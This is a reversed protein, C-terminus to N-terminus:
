QPAASLEGVYEALAERWPRLPELGLGALRTGGLVANLPRKTPSDWAASPIGEVEVDALGAEELAALALELRSCAGQNTAHVIGTAETALLRWLADALDPAYTPCGREDHVVELRKRSRAAKLISAVFNKGDPGYLWQTRVILHDPLTAAIAREGALKSEGYVTLPAPEDDELYPEARTGEFVYDTSIYLLRAELAAAGDAVNETAIANSAWAREPERTCGDVDTYAACHIIIEADAAELARRAQERVSLDGDDRTLFAVSAWAPARECVKHGLM